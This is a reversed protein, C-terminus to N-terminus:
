DEPFGMARLYERRVHDPQGAFAFHDPPGNVYSAKPRGEFVVKERNILPLVIKTNKEPDRIIAKPEGGAAVVDMQEFMKRRMMIIGRDGEGLHERTRDAIRGQGVWAAVDENMNHSTILRGTKPDHVPAYWYPIRERVYPEQETPVRTYNWLVSLTNEDDIPVRWECRGVFFANPWLCVRGVTWGPATEDWGELLRKYLFGYEFEEFKLAVHRKSGDTSLLKKAGKARPHMVTTASVHLWEFHLPDISNEQCQFWNCPVEAFVLEVFGNPWDFFDWNPLLPAPEPGMYAWVLGGKVQAQYATTKVRTKFNPHAIEEFPQELCQGREDFRWGHYRCRLGCQEVRGYSMDAGRHPCRRDILGLTGSGDRYLVLDEGMIRVPKIPHEELEAAAAIPHWYRRLLAGMKTGPGVETLLKNDEHSLM